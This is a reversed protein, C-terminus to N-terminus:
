GGDKGLQGHTYPSDAVREYREVHRVGTRVRRGHKGGVDDSCVVRMMMGLVSQTMEGERM